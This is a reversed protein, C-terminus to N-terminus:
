FTLEVYIPFHDSNIDSLREIKKLKFQETVFVHDLPWRMLFNEANFTNYFGRGKRVDFLINETNTLKDVKSWVVDNLDGAVISPNKHNKVRNGIQVLEEEAQGKNDPLDKFHTPPVPHVCHLNLIEGNEFTLLCEFSPVNKNNLHDVEMKEFPIKSYLIMGYTVENITHQSYPYKSALPKLQGDWWADTEMALFLDPKYKELLDLIPKSKRNKMKVNALLLSVQTTQSNTEKATAVDKSVLPTYNILFFTNIVLGVSLGGVLTYKLGNWKKILFFVLIMCLLSALFLQIRPFDLMKLYRIEANRFLSVISFIILIISIGYISIKAANQISKM